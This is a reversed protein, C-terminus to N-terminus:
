FSGGGGGFTNGGSGTHSSGGGGTNKNTEIKHQVVTTNVFIDRQERIDFSHNRTYTQSGVTMKAKANHMMIVVAVGGVGAAILLKLWLKYLLKEGLTRDDVNTANPLSKMYKGVKNVFTEGASYYKNNKLDTTVAKNLAEIRADSLYKIANGSTAIWTKRSQMDILLIVGDGHVENYGFDNAMYFDEAYDMDSKGQNDNITVIVIDTEVEQATKVCLNELKKSESVTLLGANDYVKEQESDFGMLMCSLLMMVTLLVLHVKKFGARRTFGKRNKMNNRMNNKMSNKM